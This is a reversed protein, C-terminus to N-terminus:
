SPAEAQPARDPPPPREPLTCRFTTGQDAGPSEAWIRGGHAAIIGACIYLGLGTGSLGSALAGPTRYFRRFLRPLEDAPIGMGRDQIALALEGDHREVVVDVRTDPPSYKLANGVLNALVQEIRRHDWDGAVPADPLQVDVRTRAEPALRALVTDLCAGLECPATQLQLAGVQIRSVDLLDDILEAMARAQAGITAVARAVKDLDPTPRRLSRTLLQAYGLIAALPTKLDHSATAVFEQQARELAHRESVDRLTAVYLTGSPLETTTAWADVLITSGDQRRVSLEARWCRDHLFRAYEAETWEPRAAIVDPV